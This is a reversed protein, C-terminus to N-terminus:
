FNFKQEYKKHNMSDLIFSIIEVESGVVTYIVRWDKSIKLVWLKDIKVEEAYKMSYEKYASPYSKKTLIQGSKFDWKLKEIARNLLKYEMIDRQDGNQLSEEVSQRWEFLDKVLRVTYM